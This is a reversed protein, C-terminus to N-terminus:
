AELVNGIKLTVAALNLACFGPRDNFEESITASIPLNVMEHAKWVSVKPLSPLMQAEFEIM